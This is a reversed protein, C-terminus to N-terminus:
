IDAHLSLNGCFDPFLHYVIQQKEDWVKRGRAVNNKM